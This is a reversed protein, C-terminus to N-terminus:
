NSNNNRFYRLKTENIYVEKCSMKNFKPAKVGITFTKNGIFVRAEDWLNTKIISNLLKSGGEVVVSQIKNKYLVNMIENLVNNNFCVKFYHINNVSINKKSNFIYTLASNDFIKLKKDLKLEKDLVIRIPNRGNWERVNLQPNDKIATNTGIMFATEQTRWKHVIKKSLKNTIWIPEILEDSKRQKDIFGDKTEAWKLIIYPRKKSHFLFFRRNLELSEKKLIGVNVECGGNILKEIGKGAVKAFSDVCGIVVRKIKNAVILDACPPTRGYHACPELNVYITSNKLLEKNKVSNIANVEAHAEGCKQHYGEGIIKGKHVVVSGVLPNPAANGIGLKALEICRQMYKKDEFQQM